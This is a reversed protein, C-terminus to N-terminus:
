VKFRLLNRARYSRDHSIEKMTQKDFVVFILIKIQAANLCIFNVRHLTVSFSIDM